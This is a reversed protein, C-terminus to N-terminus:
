SVGEYVFIFDLVHIYWPREVDAASFGGDASGTGQDADDSVGTVTESQEDQFTYGRRRAEDEIGEKSQLRDLDGKLAETNANLSDYEAQLDQSTRWAVYYRQAPGYVIVIALLVCAFSVSLRPHRRVWAVVHGPFAVIGSLTASVRDRFTRRVPVIRTESVGGYGDEYDYSDYADDYAEDDPAPGTGPAELAPVPERAVRPQRRARTVASAKSTSVYHVEDIPDWRVQDESRERFRGSSLGASRGSVAGPSVNGVRKHPRAVDKRRHRTQEAKTM